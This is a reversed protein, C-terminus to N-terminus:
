WPCEEATRRLTGRPRKMDEHFGVGLIVDETAGRPEKESLPERRADVTDGCLTFRGLHGDVNVEVALVPQDAGGQAINLCREQICESAADARCRKRLPLLETSGKVEKTVGHVVLFVHEPQSYPSLHLKGVTLM